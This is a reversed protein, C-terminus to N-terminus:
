KERICNIDQSCQLCYHNYLAHSILFFNNPKTGAPQGLRRRASVVVKADLFGEAGVHKRGIPDGSLCSVLTARAVTQM